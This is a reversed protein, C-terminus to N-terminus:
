WPRASPKRPPATGGCCPSPAGTSRSRASAAEQRPRARPRTSGYQQLQQSIVATAGDLDVDCWCLGAAESRRLGRLAILHYAAYLRDGQISNLFWATQAPTWVAVPPRIGTREWERVRATTWVV